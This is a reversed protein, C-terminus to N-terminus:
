MGYEWKDLKQDLANLVINALIPSIPGGQPVGEESGIFTGKDM